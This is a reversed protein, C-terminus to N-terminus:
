IIEESTELKPPLEVVPEPKKLGLDIKLNEVGKELDEVSMNEIATKGSSGFHLILKETRTKGVEASRGDLGSLTLAEAIAEIAIEKRKKRDEYSWDPRDFMTVSDRKVDVGEHTGGINLYDLFPKFTKFNPKDYSKGNMTDSRDKVVWARNIIGEKTEVREMEILIDPEFGTEGEVKMKTGSKIMEQKGTDDNVHQDYENGARGLMLIHIPSNIYLDTYLKWQGKLIGWDYMTLSKKNKTKAYSDCLDRWVHSISDIILVQIGATQVEKIINILDQFSRGKHVLLEIGNEEALKTMFDSGKETDFFAIQKKDSLRALGIAIEMSTRTKGSGAFGFIGAKMYATNNQAKKLLGM